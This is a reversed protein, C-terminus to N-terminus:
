RADTAPSPSIAPASAAAGGTPRAAVEDLFAGVRDMLEVGGVEFFDNHDAEDYTLHAVLREGAVKALRESMVHPIISDRRGHALLIPCRVRAIKEINDFKHRLVLSTPFGPLVKRAMEGMSTFASFAILGAVPERCALDIASAAGLSWGMAVIKTRDVDPRSVAHRYVADATAYCGAESPKGGSMGYGLFEAVIVNAGRRRLVLFEGISDALCMGNGYFYIVTPRHRADPHPSGDIRLAPGFLAVVKEGTSAKLEVLETGAMPRVVAHRQGQTAAGPFILWTQLAALVLAVGLYILVVSRLIRVARRRWPRAAPPAPAAAPQAPPDSM